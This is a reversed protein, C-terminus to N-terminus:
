YDLPQGLNLQFIANFRHKHTNQLLGQNALEGQSDNEM